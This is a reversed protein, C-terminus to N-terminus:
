SLIGGLSLSFPLKSGHVVAVCDKGSRRELRIRHVERQFHQQRVAQGNTTTVVLAVAPCDQLLRHLQRRVEMQCSGDSSTPSRESLFGDWLILTPTRQKKPHVLQCRLCELVAVWGTMDDVTAVHIRDLCARLEQDLSSDDDENTSPQRLLTSRVVHAVQPFTVDYNSDLLVVEPLDDDDIDGVIDDNQHNTTEDVSFQSPRTAVVFRAALSVLTWTKGVDGEMVLVPVSTPTTHSSASPNKKWAADCYAIGSTGHQLFAVAASSPDTPTAATAQQQQSRQFWDLATEVVVKKPAPM